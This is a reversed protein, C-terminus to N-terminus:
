DSDADNLTADVAVNAVGSFTQPFLWGVWTWPYVLIAFVILFGVVRLSGKACALCQGPGDSPTSRPGFTSHWVRDRRFLVFIDAADCNM